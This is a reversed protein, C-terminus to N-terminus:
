SCNIALEFGQGNTVELLTSGVDKRSGSDVVDTIGLKHALERREQVFEVGVVRAGMSKCPLTM